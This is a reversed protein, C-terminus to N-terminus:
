KLPFKHCLAKVEQAISLLKKNKWVDEKFTKLWRLRETKEEPLHSGTVEKAVQDIWDAIIIMEKQRMGRAALAPTGLRVGSPYFPSATDHPVTNRNAVIGAAELAEAVVTGTLGQPRFDVVLLHTDTGGTSITYGKKMLEQSLTKANDIVAKAYVKFEPSQSELLAVAIGATTNNHPGGQLGPIIAKDIAEGMKPDRDLGRQTVLIIAGRPGRLSKHTTMMVVDAYEVPSPIVHAALLGSLHSVDAVMYAGVSDAIERFGKWDILRPYATTGIMLLKPKEKKALLAVEEMDIIGKENVDFQVSRYFSGSFTVGPHGHTLHGGGSLKLGMVTDGQKVLAFYIASNAPSGSYPQVNVCPVGFIKKAREIALLEIEDIYRNGQYYRRNPYGESYKNGLVSGVAERVAQSAYNESPIMMLTDQQRTEELTILSAIDPDISALKPKMQINLIGKLM